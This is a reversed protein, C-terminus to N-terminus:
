DVRTGNARKGSTPRALDAYLREIQAAVIDSRFREYAYNAITQPNYRQWNAAMQVIANSLEDRDEAPVLMGTESTVLEEPGGCMTAIVPKGCAMAEVLVLGFTEYRSASVLFRCRRMLAALCQSELAGEFRCHSLVGLQAALPKMEAELGLGVLVLRVASPSRKIAKAFAEIMLDNGKRRDGGRGVFLIESPGTQDGESSNPYFTAHDYMNPIVQVSLDNGFEEQVERKLHASVAIVRTAHRMAFGMAWRASRSRRLDKLPGAHETIVVPLELLRTAIVAAFGVPLAFHAHILELELSRRVNRLAATIAVFCPLYSAGRVIPYEIHIVDLGFQNEWSAKTGLKTRKQDDRAQAHVLVVRHGRHQIARAQEVVYINAPFEPTPFSPSIIVINLEISGALGHHAM